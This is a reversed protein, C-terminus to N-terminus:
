LGSLLTQSLTAPFVVQYGLSSSQSGFPPLLFDTGMTPTHGGCMPQPVQSIIIIIIIIINRISHSSSFLHLRKNDGHGLFLLQMLRCILYGSLLLSKTDSCCCCCFLIIFVVTVFIIYRIFLLSYKTCM